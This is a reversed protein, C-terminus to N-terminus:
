KFGVGGTRAEGVNSHRSSLREHKMGGKLSARTAMAAMAAIASFATSRWKCDVNLAGGSRSHRKGHIKRNDAFLRVGSNGLGNIKNLKEASEPL